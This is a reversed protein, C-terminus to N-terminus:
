RTKNVQRYLELIRDKNAPIRLQVGPEVVLSARESNNASAIIWWLTHDSYFQKALIDYRDGGTSIVYFDEESLPIEPYIANVTYTVGDSTTRQKIDRYRNAM